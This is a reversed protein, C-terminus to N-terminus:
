LFLKNKGERSRGAFTKKLGTEEFSIGSPQQMALYTADGLRLIAIRIGNLDGSDENVCGNSYVALNEAAAAVPIGALLNLVLIAIIRRM